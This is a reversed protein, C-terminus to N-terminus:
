KIRLTEKQTLRVGELELGEQVAKKLSTKDVSKVVKIYEEPVVSEDDVELAPPTMAYKAVVDGFNLEKTGEMEMTFGLLELLRDQKNALAKKKAALKKAEEAIVEEFAKAEKIYYIIGKQKEKLEGHLKDMLDAQVETLEGTEDVTDLLDRLETQIDYIKM